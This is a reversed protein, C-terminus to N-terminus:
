LKMLVIFNIMIYFMIHYTLTVYYLRSHKVGTVYIKVYSLPELVMKNLIVISGVTSTVFRFFEM